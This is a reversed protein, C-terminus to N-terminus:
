SQDDDGVVTLSRGDGALLKLLEFQAINSDQYEDVLIVQFKRSLRERIERNNKFLEM